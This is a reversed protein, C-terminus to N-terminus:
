GFISYENGKCIAIVQRMFCFTMMKCEYNTFFPQSTMDFVQAEHKM